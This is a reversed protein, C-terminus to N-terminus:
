YTHIRPYIYRSQRIKGWEVDPYRVEILDTIGKTAKGLVKGNQIAADKLM